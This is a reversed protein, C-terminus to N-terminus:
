ALARLGDHNTLIVKRGDTDILGKRKFQSLTLSVTERTSGILNAMEQHTIKHDVLTGRREAIGFEGGLHLLLDALKSTVDKFILAEVKNEIKRRRQALITTLRFGVMGQRQLVSEFLERDIEILLANEMTEAMEERPQGGALVLEGFIEGAACYALTLEKGDRSVKSIKVRGQVVFFVSQGPDGPLYVVRRRRLEVLQVQGALRQLVDLPVNELLPIRRLQALARKEDVKSDATAKGTM